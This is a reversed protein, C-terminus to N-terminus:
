DWYLFLLLLSIVIIFSIIAVICWFVQERKQPIAIHKKCIRDALYFSLLLTIIGVVSPIIIESIDKFKTLSDISNYLGVITIFILIVISFLKFSWDVYKVVGDSLLTPKNRKLAAIIIVSMNTLHIIFATGYGLDHWISLAIGSIIAVIVLYVLRDLNSKAILWSTVIAIIACIFADNSIREGIYYGDYYGDNLVNCAIVSLVMYTVVGVILPITVSYKKQEAAQKKRSISQKKIDKWAFFCFGVLLVFIVGFVIM